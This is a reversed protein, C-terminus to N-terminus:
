YVIGAEVLRRRSAASLGLLRAESRALDIHQGQQGTRRRYELAALIAVAAFRPVIFDTYAGYVV